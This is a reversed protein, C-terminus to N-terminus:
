YITVVAGSRKALETVIYQLHDAKHKINEADAGHINVLLGHILTETVVNVGKENLKQTQPDFYHNLGHDPDLNFKLVVHQIIPEKIENAAVFVQTLVEIKM